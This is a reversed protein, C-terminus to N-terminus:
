VISNAKQAQSTINQKMKFSSVTKMQNNEKMSFFMSGIKCHHHIFQFGFNCKSMIKIKLKYMMM